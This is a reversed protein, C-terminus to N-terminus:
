LWGWFYYWSEGFIETFENFLGSVLVIKFESSFRYMGVLIKDDSEELNVIM